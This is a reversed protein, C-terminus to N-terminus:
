GMWDEELELKKDMLRKEKPWVYGLSRPTREINRAQM